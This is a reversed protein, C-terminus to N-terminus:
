YKDTGLMMSLAEYVSEEVFTRILSKNTSSFTIFSSIIKVRNLHQLLANKNISINTM